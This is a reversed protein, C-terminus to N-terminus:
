ARTYSARPFGVWCDIKMIKGWDITDEERVIVGIMEVLINFGREPSVQGYDSSRVGFGMEFAFAGAFSKLVYMGQIEKLAQYNVEGSTVILGLFRGDLHSAHWSLMHRIPYESSGIVKQM